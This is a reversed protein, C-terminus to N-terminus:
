GAEAARDIFLAGGTVVRDTAMLGDTIEVMNGTIQGTHVERLELSGDDRAIWVRPTDGDYVIASQPVALAAVDPGTAISFNAFMEPKLAGDPNDVDARVQLRHTAPDISPAVYSLTAKFIRSPYAPVRVEIPAGVHMAAADTERVNAVLWVRSLDGIIFVPAAAGSQIYQGAGVQRQLVSGAIPATIVTESTVLGSASATEMAHIAADSKGFIRLRNRATELAARATAMDLQSQQWDKLAAGQADYLAHQRKENAATLVFQAHATTLDNQAQVFEGAAIVLLPADKSVHDGPKALLRTVRGSYPSFVPTSLDEDIAINGDTIQYSHFTMTKVSDIELGSLQTATPRFTGPAVQQTAAHRAFYGRVADIGAIGLTVVLAAGALGAVIAIQARRPLGHATQARVAQAASVTNVDLMQLLQARLRLVREPLFHSM